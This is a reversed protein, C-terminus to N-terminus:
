DKNFLSLFELEETTVYLDSKIDYWYDQRRLYELAAVRFDSGITMENLVLGLKYGKNKNDEESIFKYLLLMYACERLFPDRIEDHIHSILMTDNEAMDLISETQQTWDYLGLVRIPVNKFGMEYMSCIGKSRVSSMINEVKDYHRSYIHYSDAFYTMEGVNSDACCAMLEMMVSWEFWNIGSAGWIADNSRVAISMHLRENRIMSHIWNNCPIDKSSEFDLAPDWLSIVARRTDPDNSLLKINEELQDVDQSFIGRFNRIRKGYGARWTLGDDSFDAARPLYMSLFKIDNRGALVWLTEAITSFINNNRKPICIVRQLPYKIQMIVTRMERTKNGRVTIEDGNSMVERITETFGWQFNEVCTSYM